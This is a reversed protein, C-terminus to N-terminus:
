PSIGIILEMRIGQLQVMSVTGSLLRGNDARRLSFSSTRVASLNGDNRMKGVIQNNESTAPFTLTLAM